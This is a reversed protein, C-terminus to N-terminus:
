ALAVALMFGIINVAIFLLVELAFLVAAKLLTKPWPEAYVQLLAFFLYVFAVVYYLTRVASANSTKRGRKNNEFL